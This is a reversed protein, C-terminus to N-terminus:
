PLRDLSKGFTGEFVIERLPRRSTPHEKARYKEPLNEAPARHGIAIM